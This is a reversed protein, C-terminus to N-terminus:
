IVNLHSVIPKIFQFIIIMYIYIGHLHMDLNCKFTSNITLSPSRRKIVLARMIFTVQVSHPWPRLHSFRGFLYCRFIALIPAIELICIIHSVHTFSSGTLERSNKSSKLFFSNLFDNKFKRLFIMIILDSSNEFPKMCFTRRKQIRTEILLSAM